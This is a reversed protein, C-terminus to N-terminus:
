KKIKRQRQRYRYGQRHGSYINYFPMFWWPEHRKKEANKKQM